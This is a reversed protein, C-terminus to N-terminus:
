QYSIKLVKQWVLVLIIAAAGAALVTIQGSSILSGDHYYKLYELLFRVPITVALIIYIAHIKNRMKSTIVVAFFHIVLFATMDVLQAPFFSGAHEGGLHVVAFPGYYEKGHCCGALLCGIKALAYMLPASTIFSAMVLDPKDKIIIGSIFVGAIMGIAAGLGSFSVSIGDPTIKFTVLISTVLTCILTLLCTYKITQWAVGSRHMRFVAIGFGAVVALVVILAYPSRSFEPIVIQM